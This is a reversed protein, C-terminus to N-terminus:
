HAKAINISVFYGKFAVSANNDVALTNFISVAVFFQIILIDIYFSSVIISTIYNDTIFCIIFGIFGIFVSISIAFTIFNCGNVTVSIGFSVAVHPNFINFLQLGNVGVKATVISQSITNISCTGRTPAIRLMICIILAKKRYTNTISSFNSFCVNIVFCFIPKISIKITYIIINKAQCNISFISIIYTQKTNCM